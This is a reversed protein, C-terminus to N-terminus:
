PARPRAAGGADIFGKDLTGDGSIFTATVGADTLQKKLRGAQEYYGGYYIVDPKLSKM